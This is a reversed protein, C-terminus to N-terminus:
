IQIPFLWYYGCVVPIYQSPPRVHFIHINLEVILIRRYQSEGNRTVISYVSYLMCMCEKINYKLVIKKEFQVRFLQWFGVVSTAVTVTKGLWSYKLFIYFFHSHLHTQWINAWELFCCQAMVVSGIQVIKVSKFKTSWVLKM